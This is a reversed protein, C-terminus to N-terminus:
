SGVASVTGSVSRSSTGASNSMYLKFKQTSAATLGTVMFNCNGDGYGGDGGIYPDISTVATGVAVYAAGNWQYWQASEYLTALGSASFIYDATLAANGGTGITITLEPGIATKTTSSTTGSFSSTASTGGAAPPPAAAKNVIVRITMSRTIGGYVASLTLVSSTLSGGSTTLSLIGTAAGITAAITGTGVAVSWAAVATVDVGNRMLKFSSTRPLADTITGGSDAAIPIEAVGIIASTVDSGVEAPQLTSVGVGNAYYGLADNTITITETLPLSLRGVTDITRVEVIYVASTVDPIETTTGRLSAALTIWTGGNQKYRVQYGDIFGGVPRLWDISLNYHNPIAKVITLHGTSNLVPPPVIGPPIQVIGTNAAVADSAAWKGADVEIAMIAVMEGNPDPRLELIRYLKPLTPLATAELAVTLYEAATTPLASALFLVNVDGRQSSSNTIAITQTITPSRWDVDAPQTTADPNYNPNPIAFRLAYSVGVELRMMDRVSVTTRATDVTLLRGTTKTGLDTDAVLITNFVQLMRGRRNTAFSVMKTENITTRLRLATRRLAEQRNTCGVAILTTPKRGYTAISPADVQQVFDQRYNMAANLFTMKIDNYRTDIDTHSYTFEGVINELTFIDSPNEPKDVKMRWEGNGVDWAYGGCAGAMYQIFENAKQSQDMVLNLNYRAHTGGIGAGDPVQTSFWKSAELADWKNLYCGPTISSLGSISDSLADNIIWAPDTTFAKVWSGDWTAGTYARTAPDYVGSPPVQVIKTDYEGTVDPVGTLQNSAKGIIQLWALARWEEFNGLQGSFVASASEWQITRKEFNPDADVTEPERLRVRLDWGVNAYAGTKPVAVRLEYVYPSTTKGTINTYGNNTEADWNSGIGGVFNEQPIYARLNGAIAYGQPNYTTSPVAVQPSIWNTLGTPKMQIELNASNDYVGNKDQKYLQAVVFRFDIFDANINSITKVVWPGPTGAANTNGIALNVTVPSGGAGLQPTVLQPYLTPDGNATIITMSQFNMTGSADEVPTGDLQVSKLGNTPGVIPGCCIGLIGEFSDESRLNDERNKFAGGGSPGGAGSFIM